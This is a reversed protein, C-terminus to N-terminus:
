CYSQDAIPYKRDRVRFNPVIQRWVDSGGGVEVNETGVELCKQKREGIGPSATYNAPRSYMANQGAAICCKMGKVKDKAKQKSEGHTQMPACRNVCALDKKIIIIIIIVAVTFDSTTKERSRCLISAFNGRGNRVNEPNNTEISV